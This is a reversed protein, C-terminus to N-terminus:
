LGQQQKFQQLDAMLELMSQSLEPLRQYDSWLSDEVVDHIQGAVEMIIRKKKALIKQPDQVETM